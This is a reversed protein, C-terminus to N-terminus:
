EPIISFILCSGKGQRAPPAAHTSTLASGPYKMRRWQFEEIVKKEVAEIGVAEVMEVARAVNPMVAVVATVAGALPM